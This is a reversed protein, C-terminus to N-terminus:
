PSSSLRKTQPVYECFLKELVEVSHYSHNVMRMENAQNDKDRQRQHTLALCKSDHQALKTVM